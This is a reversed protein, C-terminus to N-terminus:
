AAQYAGEQKHRYQWASWRDITLTVPDTGARCQVFIHPTLAVTSTVAGAQWGSDYTVTLRKTWDNEASDTGVMGGRLFRASGGALAVILLEYIGAHPKPDATPTGTQNANSAWSGINTPEVKTMVTGNAVGFGQWGVGGADDTDFIWCAGDTATATPTALVAAIAGAHDTAASGATATQDSFGIEAKVNTVQNLHVLAAFVANQEGYWHLGLSATQGNDESSGTVLTAEGNRIASTPASIALGTGQGATQYGGHITDGLFDDDWSVM